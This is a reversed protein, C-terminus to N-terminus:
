RGAEKDSRFRASDLRLSVARLHADLQEEGALAIIAPGLAELGAATARQVTYRRYFDLLGLSSYNRAFGYTPLVHNTGTAYDGGSEPTYHGVFVSGARTLRPLLPEADSLQVSLHEPAYQESIAIAEDLSDTLILSSSALAQQAIAQRPLAALQEALAARVATIFQASPSLLLVQSDPGHEAQSLLDAAVFAPEASDDAIILLESPGAPLDIAPGGAIQSVQQKAETVYSNGPGFIKDVAPISDTGVALAAVAQAGGALFVRTVDCKLAAYCIAPTLEGSQSPPSILVRERCGALQAPIGLMLVTSPLSATGGPIYLGVSDLATFRLECHIGPMTEVYQDQPIQAQHFRRINNYAVDIAQQVSAPAQAALRQVDALPLEPTALTVGDFRATYDLVAQDGREQVDAIIAAVSTRLTDSTKQVPRALAAQQAAQNLTSWRVAEPIILTNPVEM